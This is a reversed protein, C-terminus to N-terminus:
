RTLNAADLVKEMAAAGDNGVWRRICHCAQGGEGRGQNERRSSRSVRRCVGKRKRGAAPRARSRRERQVQRGRVGARARRPVRARLAM